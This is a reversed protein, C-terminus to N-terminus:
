EQVPSAGAPIPNAVAAVTDQVITGRSDSAFYRRGTGSTIPAASAFYGSAPVGVAGNCTSVPAQDLTGASGNKVVAFAYGSKAIGNHALDVSLFADASGAPPLVLDDLAIAYFGHACTSAFTAEASNVARLSGIASAENAVMRARLLSPIAIAAVVGIVAVVVLLEILTFGDCARRTPVPSPM